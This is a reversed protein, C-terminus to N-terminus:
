ICKACLLQASKNESKKKKAYVACSNLFHSPIIQTTIISDWLNYVLALKQLGEAM